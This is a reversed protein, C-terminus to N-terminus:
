ESRAKYARVQLNFEDAIIEMEEVAANHKKNLADEMEALKSEDPSEMSDRASQEEEAICTLYTEMAAMYAKVSKQSAIMEEKSATAGDAIKARAPYNCEAVATQAAFLAILAPLILNKM